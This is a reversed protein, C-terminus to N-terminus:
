ATWHKMGPFIRVCPFCELAVMVLLVRGTPDNEELKGPPRGQQGLTRHINEKRQYLVQALAIITAVHVYDHGVHQVEDGAM